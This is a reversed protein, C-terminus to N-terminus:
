FVTMTLGLAGLGGLANYFRILYLEIIGFGGFPDLITMTLEAAGGGGNLWETVILVLAGFAGVDNILIAAGFLFVRFLKM